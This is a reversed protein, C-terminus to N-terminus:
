AKLGLPERLDYLSHITLSPTVDPFKREGRDILVDFVEANKAMIIDENSNGVYLAENKKVGLLSLCEKIGHPHPKSKIEVLENVLVIADFSKPDLMRIEM